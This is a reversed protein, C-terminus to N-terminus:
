ELNENFSTPFFFCINTGVLWITAVWGIFVSYRGLNFPGQEFTNRAVTVRLFIPIAYSTQYGITSISTIASFTTDNILPLLVLFSDVMFVFIISKLPLLNKGYVGYIYKSFPLAGDRSMAFAIRTTVTLHSFGGLYVSILLLVSISLSGAKNHFGDKDTFAIKFVNIVPQDTDGNIVADINNNISYLLGLFFALGTIIGAIVGLM